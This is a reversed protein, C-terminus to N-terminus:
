TQIYYLRTTGSNFILGYRSRTYSEIILISNGGGRLALSNDDSFAIIGSKRNYIRAIMEEILDQPHFRSYSIIKVNAEKRYIAEFYDYPQKHGSAILVNEKFNSDTLFRVSCLESSPIYTFADSGNKSIPILYASSVMLILIAISVMRLVWRKLGIQKSNLDLFLAILISWPLFLFMFPRTMLGPNMFLFFMASFLLSVFWIAVIRVMEIQKRGWRLIGLTSIIGLLVILIIIIERTMIVIWYSFAPHSVVKPESLSIFSTVVQTLTKLSLQFTEQAAFISWSTFTVAYLLLLGV